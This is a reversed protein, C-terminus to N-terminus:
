AFVRDLAGRKWPEVAATDPQDIPKPQNDVILFTRRPPETLSVAQKWPLAKVSPPLPIEDEFHLYSKLTAELAEWFDRVIADENDGTGIVSPLERVRVLLDGEPTHEPYITWPLRLLYDLRQQVDWM